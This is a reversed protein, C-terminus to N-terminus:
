ARFSSRPPQSLCELCTIPLASLEPAVSPLKTSSSSPHPCLPIFPLALGFDSLLVKPALLVHQGFPPLSM